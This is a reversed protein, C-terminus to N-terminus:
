VIRYKVVALLIKLGDLFSLKADGVRKQYSVPVVSFRLGKKATEAFLNMELEFGQATLNMKKLARGTFAWYGTTVDPHWKLFLLSAMWSILRGGIAHVLSRLNYVLVSRDGAVVEAGEAIKQALKPADEASYSADADLMVYVADDELPYTTLFTKFANGKGRGDQKLVAAGAERAAQVTNDTSGGDVVMIETIGQLRLGNVVLRM